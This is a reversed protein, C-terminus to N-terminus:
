KWAIVRRVTVNRGYKSAWVWIKGTDPDIKQRGHQENPEAYLEWADWEKKRIQKEMIIEKRTM